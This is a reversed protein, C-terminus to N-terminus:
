SPEPDITLRHGVGPVTHIHVPEDPAPEFRRRLRQVLADIARTSPFVDYGWVKELIEERTLTDGPREWLAKLLLAEKESLDHRAGDWGTAQWTALDVRNGGFTAVHGRRGAEASWSQRRLIAAVRTLLEDLHFPKPLYDDGGAALGRVRDDVAGRATLFLIPTRVGADRARRCVEFGDLHPLMVDLLALNFDGSTLQALGARGDQAHVVEYGELELNEIVGLAIHIEDEVVLIRAKAESM